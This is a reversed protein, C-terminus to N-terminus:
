LKGVLGRVGGSVAESGASLTRVQSTVQRIIKACGWRQLGRLVGGSAVSLGYVCTGVTRPDVYRGLTVELMVRVWIANIV